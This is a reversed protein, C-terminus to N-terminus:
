AEVTLIGTRRDWAPPPKAHGKACNRDISVRAEKTLDNWKLNLNLNVALIGMFFLFAPQSSISQSNAFDSTAINIGSLCLNAMQDPENKWSRIFWKLTTSSTM